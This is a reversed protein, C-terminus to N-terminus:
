LSRSSVCLKLYWGSYVSAGWHFWLSEELMEVLLMLM